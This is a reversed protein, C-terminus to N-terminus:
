CPFSSVKFDEYELLQRFESGSHSLTGEILPRVDLHADINLVGISEEKAIAILAKANPFSQDSGGGVM